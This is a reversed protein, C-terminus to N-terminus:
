RGGNKFTQFVGTIVCSRNIEQGIRTRIRKSDSCAGIWNAADTDAGCVWVADACISDSRRMGVTDMQRRTGCAADAYRM